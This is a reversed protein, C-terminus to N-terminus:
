DNEGLIRFGPMLQKRDFKVEMFSRCTKDFLVTPLYKTFETLFCHHATGQRYTFLCLPEMLENYISHFQRVASRKRYATKALRLQVYRDAWPRLRRNVEHVRDDGGLVAEAQSVRFGALQDNVERVVSLIDSMEGILEPDLFKKASSPLSYTAVPQPVIIWDDQSLSELARQDWESLETKEQLMKFTRAKEQALSRVDLGLWPHQALDIAIENGIGEDDPM